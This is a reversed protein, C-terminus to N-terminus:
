VIRSIPCTLQGSIRIQYRHDESLYGIEYLASILQRISIRGGPIPNRSLFQCGLAHIPLIENEKEISWERLGVV